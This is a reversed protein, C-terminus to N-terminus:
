WGLEHLVDGSKGSRLSDRGNRSRHRSLIQPNQIAPAVQNEVDARRQQKDRHEDQRLRTPPRFVNIKKDSSKARHTVVQWSHNAGVAITREELAELPAENKCRNKQHSRLPM